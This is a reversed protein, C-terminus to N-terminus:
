AAEGARIEGGTVVLKLWRDDWAYFAMALPDPSERWAIDPKALIVDAECGVELRGTRTWGLAAANGATIQWWAEAATPVVAEPNEFRFYKAADIMARATRIMSRETGAGIDSGLSLRAGSKLWEARAMLGSQLFVNATPCHAIVAQRENILALEDRHLHIGHGLLTRPTLLGADDYVQTYSRDPYLQRMFQCEPENEALHTQILTQYGNAIRAAGRMLEDSCTIAFRPTIVFEQRHSTETSQAASRSNCPPYKKTLQKAEDLLQQTPRLLEAPANRDMLVQGIAARVNKAYAAELALEAGRAHVTAYACFGTTGFSLLQNLVAATRRRAYDVDEWRAEEPFVSRELWELLSYGEQGIVPFQPLHVHTDIFGPSVLWDEGGLDLTAPITGFHLEVIRWNEM